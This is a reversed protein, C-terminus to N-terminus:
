GDFIRKWRSAFTIQKAPAPLQRHSDDFTERHRFCKMNRRKRRGCITLILFKLDKLVIRAIFYTKFYNIEQAFVNKERTPARWGIRSIRWSNKLGDAHMRVWHIFFDKNNVCPAFISSSPKENVTMQRQTKSSLDGLVSLMRQRANAERTSPKGNQFYCWCQSPSRKVLLISNFSDFYFWRRVCRGNRDVEAVFEDHIMDRFQVCMSGCLGVSTPSRVVFFGVVVVVSISAM